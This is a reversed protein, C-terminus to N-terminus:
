IYGVVGYLVFSAQVFCPSPCCSPNFKTMGAILETLSLDNEAKFSFVLSSVTHHQMNMLISCISYFMQAKSINSIVLIQYGLLPFSKVKVISVLQFTLFINCDFNHCATSHRVTGHQAMACQSTILILCHFVFSLSTQFRKFWRCNLGCCM